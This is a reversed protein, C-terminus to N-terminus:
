EFIVQGPAEAEKSGFLCRGQGYVAIKKGLSESGVLKDYLEQGNENDYAMAWVHADTSCDAGFVNDGEISFYFATDDDSMTINSVLGSAGGNGSYIITKRKVKQEEKKKM